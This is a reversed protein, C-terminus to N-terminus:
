PLQRDILLPGFPDDLHQHFAQGNDHGFWGLSKAVIPALLFQKCISCTLM